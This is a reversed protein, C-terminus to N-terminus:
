HSEKANQQHWTALVEAAADARAQMTAATPAKICSSRTIYKGTDASICATKLAKRYPLYWVHQQTVVPRFEPDFSDDVNPIKLLVQISELTAEIRLRTRAYPAPLVSVSHECGDKDTVALDVYGITCGCHIAL